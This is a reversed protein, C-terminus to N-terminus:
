GCQLLFKTTEFDGNAASIMLPTKYFKDRINVSVGLSFMKALESFDSSNMVQNSHTLFRIYIVEISQYLVFYMTKIHCYYTQSVQM